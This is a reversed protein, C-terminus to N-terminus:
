GTRSLWPPTTLFHRRYRVGSSELISALTDSDFRTAHAAGILVAAWGRGYLSRSRNIADAWMRDRVNILRRKPLDAEVAAWLKSATAQISARASDMSKTNAANGDMLYTLEVAKKWELHFRPRRTIADETSPDVRDDLWVVPVKRAFAKFAVTAEWCLTATAARLVDPNAGPWARDRLHKELHDSEAILAHYVERPWEVAIFRPRRGYARTTSHLWSTAKIPMDFRDHLGGVLWLDRRKRSM